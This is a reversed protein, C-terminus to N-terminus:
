SATPQPQPRPFLPDGKRVQWASVDLSELQDFRQASVEGPAGLMRWLQASKEPMFPVLLVTQRAIRRILSALIVELEARRSEDKAVTWPATAATFENARATLRGVAALGEHLQWGNEGHMARHYEAIEEADGQEAEPMAATPVVGDFYKEVMAMARSALNGFANALDATYREEFREWSFNGDGDFPVERLLVYRFADVGFRDIAEGLDLKVGASKSFREGGLQVFGHAWVQKPLPLGAAQLMAPWIVVHFRTIDKGIIHLDAPWRQDYGEDPFGTATLYNPLADFWVYTGQTEGNSLVLPFPVAWDLRARSASIDELGQALLGLIENRRSSPEIFSPNSALLDQLFGQYKSLRFFWNREEVEELTRTPHLVCKGDVIDADQKFSECGVCYMGTYSREYFDDPNREAIRRILTQVGLKHHAETTRIFQDYSIGLRSWMGQFRAAITDTFAQPAVGEKAATQQVKQGHEDMGILLHVDDGCLRRYRAIVDAGIKELAHGLHPDGNAYDIATTLYFRSM